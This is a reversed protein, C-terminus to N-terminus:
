GFSSPVSSLASILLNLASEKSLGAGIRKADKPAAVLGNIAIDYAM